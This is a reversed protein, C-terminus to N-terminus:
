DSIKKKSFYLKIEFLLVLVFSSILTFLGFILSLLFAEEKMFSFFDLVIVFVFERYGWDTFTPSISSLLILGPIVFFIQYNSLEFNMIRVCLYLQIFAIIQILFSYVFAFYKDKFDEMKEKYFRTNKVLYLFIMLAFLLFIFFINITTLFICFYIIFFLLSLFKEVLIVFFNNKLSLNIKKSLFYRALVLFASGAESALSSYFIIQTSDNKKIKTNLFYKCIIKFRELNFINNLLSLLFFIILYLYNGFIYEIDLIKLFNNFDIFYFLYIISGLFILLKIFFFINKNLQHM